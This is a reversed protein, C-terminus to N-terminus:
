FRYAFGVNLTRAWFDTTAVRFPPQAEGVGQVPSDNGYSVTQTPDINRNIQEGPRAVNSASLFSYGVFVIAEPTLRYGVNLTVEPVSAFVNQTHNGSNSPFAFYGGAFTQTPGYNTYDNTELYGDVSVRQQMTGFAVKGAVSGMWPGREFAARAGVQLGYFRNRTDFADTTNWVDAPNPPNYPSSTTVTYSERLQLFRFGGLLDLRWGDQSPLSWTVNVEGGGLSNSFTAQASGRYDPWFSLETVNEQHITVDYFPLLLDVSGPQGTSSVSASTTRSPLYFGGVELGMRNDIRYTGTVRLGANVNTDVTGGGLLVNVGPVDLYNDTVIPVPTPSAKLSAFLAEASLSWRGDSEAPMPATQALAVRAACGWLAMATACRLVAHRGKM